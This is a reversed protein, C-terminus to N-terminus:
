KRLLAELAVLPQGALAKLFASGGTSLFSVQNRDSMKLIAASTDVGGALTVGPCEALARTVLATGKSFAPTEYAGMPGNWIITRCLSFVQSYLLQTAPGIDESVLEPTLNQAPVNTVTDGEGSLAVADVPFFLKAKYERCRSLIARIEEVSEQALSFHEIGGGLALRSFADGMQGGLIVFDARNMLKTVVPLKFDVNRGGIIAAMPQAPNYLARGMAMLENKLALGGCSQGAFRVITTMSAHARHCVGFADNVYVDALAALEKAFAPDGTIEGPHFRLNELLMVQGPALKAAAEATAPGIVEPAFSVDVEWIRSLRRALPAFSFRPDPRGDRDLPNRLHSGIIVSAGHDLLHNITPLVARLRGDDVPSGNEDLPVNFDTRVFVKKGSLDVDGPFPINKLLEALDCQNASHTM